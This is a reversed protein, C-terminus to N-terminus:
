ENPQEKREVLATYIIQNDYPEILIEENENGFKFYLDSSNNSSKIADQSGFEGLRDYERINAEGYLDYLAQLFNFNEVPHTTGDDYIRAHCIIVQECTMPSWVSYFDNFTTNLWTYLSHRCKLDYPDCALHENMQTM